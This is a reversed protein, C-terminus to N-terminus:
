PPATPMSREMTECVAERASPHFGDLYVMADDIRYAWVTAHRIWQGLLYRTAAIVGIGAFAAVLTREDSVFAIVLLVAVSVAVFVAWLIIESKVWRSHCKTCLPLELEASRLTLALVLFAPLLGFPLLAWIWRPHWQISRRVSKRGVAGCKVCVHPLIAHKDFVIRDGDAYAISIFGPENGDRLGRYPTASPRPMAAVLTGSTCPGM